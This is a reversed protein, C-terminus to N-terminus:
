NLKRRIVILSNLTKVDYKRYDNPNWAENTAESSNVDNDRSSCKILNLM